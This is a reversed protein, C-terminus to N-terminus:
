STRLYEGYYKLEAEKRVKVADEFNDFYGLTKAKNNICIYSMWKPTPIKTNWLVGACGSTNNKSVKRNKANDKRTCIRLNNKRTNLTNGDIHDVVNNSPCEMILRHLFIENNSNFAYYAVYDCVQSKAAFIGWHYENVRQVDENDIIFDFIGFKDSTVKLITYNNDKKTYINKHKIM